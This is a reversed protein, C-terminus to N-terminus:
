SVQEFLNMQLSTHEAYGVGIGVLRIQHKPRLSAIKHLMILCAEVDLQAAKIEKTKVIFDDFKLKVQLKNIQKKETELRKYLRESLKLMLAMDVDEIEIDQEFTREVSTSKSVRDSSVLREDIGRVRHYLCVGMKGFHRELEPLSFREIEKCTSIGFHELRKQMVKGVGPIVKVPLDRIFGILHEPPVVCIGNPKNFDSAIKAVFKNVSVGASATLGTLDFIKKRIDEAILTASGEFLSCDTVDLFAEDLSLPEILDTYQYFIQKIQNSISKYLSMQGPIIVLDPCLQKAKRSSMASRVGFQRAIYNCTCLVGRESDGGVAIPLNKLTPNERMEVAAFYCDM